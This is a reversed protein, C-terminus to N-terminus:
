PLQPYQQYFWQMSAALPITPLDTYPVMAIGYNEAYTLDKWNVTQTSKYHLVEIGQANTWTALYQLDGPALKLGTEEEVERLAAAEPAEGAEVKGGFFCFQYQDKDRRLHLLAKGEADTMLVRVAHTTM